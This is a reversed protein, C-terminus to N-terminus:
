KSFAAVKKLCMLATVSRDTHEHPPIDAQVGNFCKYIRLRELLGGNQLKYSKFIM